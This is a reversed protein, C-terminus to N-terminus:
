PKAAALARGVQRLRCVSWLLWRLWLRRMRGEAQRAAAAAAAVLPLSSARWTAMASATRRRRRAADSARLAQTLRAGDRAWRAWWRALRRLSTRRWAQRAVRAAVGSLEARRWRHLALQLARLRLAGDAARRAQPSYGRRLRAAAAWARWGRALHLPARVALM